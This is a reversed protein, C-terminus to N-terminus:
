ESRLSSDRPSVCREDGGDALWDAALDEWTPNLSEVLELKRDRLWGKIEKERSIAVLPDPADEVFVLKDLNYRATFGKALKSKHELVRRSIDNTVGTYLTGRPRNTMIYVYFQNPKRAM